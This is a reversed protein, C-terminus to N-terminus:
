PHHNLENIEKNKKKTSKGKQRQTGKEEARRRGKKLDLKIVNICCDSYANFQLHFPFFVHAEPM